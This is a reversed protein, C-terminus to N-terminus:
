SEFLKINSPMYDSSHRMKYVHYQREDSKFWAELNNIEMNIAAESEDIFKSFGNYIDKQNSDDQQLFKDQWKPCCFYWGSFLEAKERTKETDIDEWWKRKLNKIYDNRTKSWLAIGTDHYFGRDALLVAKGRSAYEIGISGHVTVVGSTIQMLSVSSWSDPVIGINNKYYKSILDTLTIGGYRKDVPHAKFVWNIDDTKSAINLTIDLWDQFDRFNSMGSNHPFDFWNSAYVAIIPKKNKWGFHNLMESPSIDDTKNKYAYIAGIDTTDGNLRKELYKKGAISLKRSTNSDIRNLDNQNPANMWDYFDSSKNIKFFRCVGFNGYLVITQINKKYAYWALASYRYQIAHSLLLLKPKVNDIINKAAYISGIAEYLHQKIMPHYIDVIASRQQKLLGDYVFSAPWDFPLKWSLIQDATKTGKLLKDVAKKIFIKEPFYSEFMGYIKIDFINLTSKVDARNLYPGYVGYQQNNNLGLATRLLSYRLWYNPNDWMGDILVPGEVLKKYNKNLGLLTKESKIRNRIYEKHEKRYSLSYRVISLKTNSLVKRIQNTIWYIKKTFIVIKNPRYSM